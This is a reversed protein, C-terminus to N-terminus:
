KMIKKTYHNIADHAFQLFYRFQNSHEHKKHKNSYNIMQLLYYSDDKADLTMGKVWGTMNTRNGYHLPAFARRNQALENYWGEYIEMFQKLSEFPKDAYFADNFGRNKKLPFYKENPLVNVLTRLLMGDAVSKVLDKYGNGLSSLDLSENDHEIARTLFQPKEPKEQELFNFFATAAVLEVFHAKDEQKQEDNDYVQKLSKEGVYYLYDPEVKGAYYMLASKTKTYFNASDIDSSTSSPDKLGFYPLVTVAGMLAGKVAPSNDANHIMKELLPFGSAGTGGFISSIIFVRDGQECKSKFDRYWSASEIMEGLVVTGVNPNGKFGVALSNNLNKTSFLTEVLFNNIDDTALQSTNIYSRFKEQSGADQQAAVKAGCLESLSMLETSFFGDLPNLTDNGNNRSHHHINEYKDILDHLNKKEDLDLHPDIIIPIVTFGHTKTGGAMLMLISKMVRLGTGGICFVFVKKM